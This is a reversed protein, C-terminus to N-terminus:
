KRGRRKGRVEAPAAVAVEVPEAPVEAPVEAPEAFEALAADIEALTLGKAVPAAEPAKAAFVPSPVESVIEVTAGPVNRFAEGTLPVYLSREAGMFYVYYAVAGMASRGVGSTIRVPTPAGNFTGYTVPARKPAPYTKAVAEVVASFGSVPNAIKLTVKVICGKLYPKLSEARYTSRSVVSRIM